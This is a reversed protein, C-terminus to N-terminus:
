REELKVRRNYWNMFGSTLLSMSLYVSMMIATMEVARGSQNIITGYVQVLDPYGVAVALSSNKTLNLFQSTLPPIMVRLAQPLLILRLTQFGTFGLARAAETQGKSVAQIGARVVEGIFAATYLVLGSLVAIFESTLNKGGLINFGTEPLAPLDITLPAAPLLVWGLLAVGLFVALGGLTSFPMRGTRQGRQRLFLASVVALIFGALLILRYAPFTLGAIGWPIAVGRNSLLIPGFESADQVSPLKLFFGRYWFILFVLLPINRFIETYIRALRNVLINSSLSAVGIVVGLVTAGIIGLVAVLLTNLFGVSLAQLYTSTRSYAILHQSIDFGSQLSLFELSLPLGLAELSAVMNGYLYLIVAIVVGLVLAQTIWQLVREDRWFPIGKRQTINSTM